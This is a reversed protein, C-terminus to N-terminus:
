DVCEWFASMLPFHAKHHKKPQPLPYHTPPLGEVHRVHKRRVAPRMAPGSCLSTTPQKDTHLQCPRKNGQMQEGNPSGLTYLLSSVVGPFVRTGAQIMPSVRQSHASQRCALRSACARSQEPAAWPSSHAWVVSVCTLLCPSVKLHITSFERHPEGTVASRDPTNDCCTPARKLTLVLSQEMFVTRYFKQPNIQLTTKLSLVPNHFPTSKLHNSNPFITKLTLGKLKRHIIPQM